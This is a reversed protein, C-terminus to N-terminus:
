PIRKLDTGAGYLAERRRALRTPRLEFPVDVERPTDDSLLVRAALLVGALAIANGIEGRLAMDQAEGVPVWSCTMDAEEDDAAPKVVRELDRALYIRVAEEAFGPSTFMDTLLHWTHAKLGAEEMLERQAAALPDEEAIDLLGAPLETLRRGAAQRWQNLLCIRGDADAAVVAVAGFHEVIERAAIHGGPMRVQDRRVAIIPAELLVESNVVEFDHAMLGLNARWPQPM